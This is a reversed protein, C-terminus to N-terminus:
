CIQTIVKIVDMNPMSIDLLVVDPKLNSIVDIAQLGNVAEGVIKISKKQHLILCLMERFLAHDNAVLVGIKAGM